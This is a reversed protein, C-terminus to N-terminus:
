DQGVEAVYIQNNGISSWGLFLSGNHAALCPANNSTEASIFKGSFSQGSDASVMVNLNSNSSGKWGLFLRGGNAALTPGASSTDSLTVKNSFGQVSGAANFSVQAVNLQNNGVGKWAILLLGNFSLLAPAADSTEASTFKGGFTQGNDASSLINLLNNGVGRWALFLRGNHSALAPGATTTDALTVKGAFGQVTGSPALTVQAVNLQNNGTGKWALFLLSNHFALDPAADSTELSDFQGGFTQGNDASSTLSLRNNGPGTWGLFLRGAASAMAPSQGSTQGLTVKNSLFLDYSYYLLVNAGAVRTHQGCDAVADFPTWTVAPSVAGTQLSIAAMVTLKTAPYDSCRTIGYCELTETAQKLEAINQVTLRTGNIGQFECSYSLLNGAQSTLAMVGVLTQGPNVNALTSHFAHGSPDVFWSGVSWYNGGGASSPGWQLVPQLIDSMGTLGNFLFITQGSQTAPPPPVTWLTKFFSIPTGTTNRFSGWAIWGSGLAPIKKAPASLKAIETRVNTALDLRHLQDGVRSLAQGAPLHHVFAPPRFGGPTLVLGPLRSAVPVPATAPVGIGSVVAAAGAADGRVAEEAGVPHVHDAPRPGGPTLALPNDQNPPSPQNSM